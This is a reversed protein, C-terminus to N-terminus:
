ESRWMGQMVKDTFHAHVAKSAEASMHKAYHKIAKRAETRRSIHDLQDYLAAAVNADAPTHENAIGEAFDRKAERNAVVNKSYKEVVKPGYSALERQAVLQDQTHDATPRIQKRWLKDEPIPAYPQDEPANPTEEVPKGPKKTIKQMLASIAPSAPADSVEAEPQAALKRMVNAASLLQSGRKTFETNSLASLGGQENIAPSDGALGEAQAVGAAKRQAINDAMQQKNSAALGRMLVRQRGMLPKLADFADVHSMPQPQPAPAEAPLGTKLQQQLMKLAIPSLNPAEPAPPPAPAQRSAALQQLAPIADSIMSKKKQDGLQKAIKAMGEEIKANANLTPRLNPVPEAPNGWLATNQPPTVQPVSTTAPEPIPAQAEPLRVPADTGGFRDQFAQAPSRQGTLKDVMRSVGYAGAGAAVVPLTLGTAHGLVLGMGAAATKGALNSPVMNEMAGSLGGTAKINASLMAQRALLMTDPSAEDALAKVESPAVKDGKNIRSLTNANDQSLDEAKSAAALEKHVDTRANNVVEESVGTGGLPGVLKRGDAILAQRKALAQAALQQDPDAEIKGYKANAATESALRPAVLLGSGAARSLATTATRNLDVNLGDKSGATTAAQDVIDNAAGTGAEIGVTKLYKELATGALKSTPLIRSGGVMNLPLEVAQKAAERTLDRTEVPSDPVGTRADANAHAGPGFTRLLASGAFGGMGAMAAAAPGRRAGLKGAAWGASADQALGPAQEALIQPLASPQYDTPNYWHGGERILSAGKYNKPEANAAITDLGPTSAGTLGITSANGRAAEAIGHQLGAVVGSPAAEAPLHQAIHNVMAQQDESSLKLFEDGVTVDHGAVTLTPM